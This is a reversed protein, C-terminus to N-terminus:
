RTAYAKCIEFHTLVDGGNQVFDSLAISFCLASHKVTSREDKESLSSSSSCALLSLYAIGILSLRLLRM